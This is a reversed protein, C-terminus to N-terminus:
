RRLALYVMTLASLLSSAAFALLYPDLKKSLTTGIEGCDISQISVWFAAGLICFFTIAEFISVGKKIRAMRFIISLALAIFILMIVEDDGGSSLLESCRFPTGESLVYFGDSIMAFLVASTVQVGVLGIFLLSLSKNNM